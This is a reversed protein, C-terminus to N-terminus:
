QATQLSFSSLGRSAAGCEKSFPKVRFKVPCFLRKAQKEIEQQKRTDSYGILYDTSVHFLVCLKILDEYSPRNRGSEYNAIATYGYGLYEGVETQTLNREKRLEKLRKAFLVEM